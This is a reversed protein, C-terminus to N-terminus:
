GIFFTSIIIEAAQDVKCDAIIKIVKATLDAKDIGPLHFITCWSFDSKFQPDVLFMVHLADFIRSELVKRLAQPEKLTEVPLYKCMRQSILIVSLSPSITM